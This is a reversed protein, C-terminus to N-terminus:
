SFQARLRPINNNLQTWHTFLHSVFESGLHYTTYAPGPERDQFVPFFIYFFSASDSQPIARVPKETNTPM